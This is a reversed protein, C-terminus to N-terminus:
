LPGLNKWRLWDNSSNLCRTLLIRFKASTLNHSKCVGGITFPIFYTARAQRLRVTHIATLIAFAIVAHIAAPLSPTYRYLEFDNDTDASDRSNLM